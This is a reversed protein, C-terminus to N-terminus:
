MFRLEEEPQSQTAESPGQPIFSAQSDLAPLPEGRPLLTM